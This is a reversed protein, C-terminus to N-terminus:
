FVVPEYAALACAPIPFTTAPLVKAIKCLTPAPPGGAAIRLPDANVTVPTPQAAAHLALIGPEM